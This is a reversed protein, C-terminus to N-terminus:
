SGMGRVVFAVIESVKDTLCAGVLLSAAIVYKLPISVTQNAVPAETDVAAVM